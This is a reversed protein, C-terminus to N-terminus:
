LKDIYLLYVQKLPKAECLFFLLHSIYKKRQIFNQTPFRLRKHCSIITRRHQTRGSLITMEGTNRATSSMIIVIPVCYKKFFFRHVGVCCKKKVRM